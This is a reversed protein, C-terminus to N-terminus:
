SDSVTSNLNLACTYSDGTNYFLMPQAYLSAVFIVVLSTILSGIFGACHWKSMSELRVKM